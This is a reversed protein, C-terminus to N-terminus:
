NATNPSRASRASQSRPRDNGGHRLDPLGAMKRAAARSPRSAAAANAPGPSTPRTRLWARRAM